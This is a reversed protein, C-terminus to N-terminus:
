LLNWRSASPHSRVKHLFVFSSKFMVNIKTLIRRAYADTGTNM